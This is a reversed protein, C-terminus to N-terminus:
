YQRGMKIYEIEKEFSDFDFEDEKIGDESIGSYLLGLSYNYILRIIPCLICLYIILGVYPILIMLFGVYNILGTLIGMVVLWAIFKGIGIHRIDKLTKHIKLAEVLSNYNALRAKAIYYILSFIWGVIVSGILTICMSRLFVNLLGAFSAPNQSIGAFVNPFKWLGTAFSLILFAVVVPIWIYCIHLVILKLTNLISRGIKFPIKSSNDIGSKTVLIMFGPTILLFLFLTVFGAIIVIRNNYILGYPLVLQLAFLIFVCILHKLDKFPYKFSKSIIDGFEM